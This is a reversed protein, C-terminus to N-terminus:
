IQAFLIRIGIIGLSVSLIKVIMRGHIKRSLYAGIQAGPVVGLALGIIMTVLVSNNYTGNFLHTAVSVIAMIALIFQSTATAIHVPFKLWEAMAPVHIIGGGIGFIPSFYGVFLSLFSGKRIDYAYEYLQGQRDIIRQQVWGKHEKQRM